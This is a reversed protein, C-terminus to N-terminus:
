DELRHLWMVLADEKNDPYYGKRRGAIVFGMKEYLQIAPKNGARVELTMCVAGREKSLDCLHDMLRRGLGQGRFDPHIAINTVHAEDTLVWAGAYGTVQGDVLLVSFISQANGIEGKFSGESWPASHSQREIELAKSIHQPGLPEFRIIRNQSM